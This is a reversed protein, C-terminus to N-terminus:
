TAHAVGNVEAYAVPAQARLAAVWQLEWGAPVSIEFSSGGLSRAPPLGLEILLEEFAAQQGPKVGVLVDGTAYEVMNNPDAGPYADTKQYASGAVKLTSGEYQVFPEDSGGCAAFFPLCLLLLFRIPLLPRGPM